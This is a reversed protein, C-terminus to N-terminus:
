ALHEKLVALQTRRAQAHLARGDDTATVFVGRRDTDCMARAVLGCKELRAVARSSASQSLHLDGVLDHIRSKCGEAAILRDLVEYDSMTLGHRDQLARDLEHAVRSYQSLLERWSEILPEETKM